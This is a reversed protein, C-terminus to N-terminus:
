FTLILNSWTSFPPLPLLCPFAKVYYCYCFKLLTLMFKYACQLVFYNLPSILLKLCSFCTLGDLETAGNDGNMFLAPNNHLLNFHPLNIHSLNIHPLNNHSFNNHPLNIHPLNYYPFNFAAFICGFELCWIKIKFCWGIALNSIVSM